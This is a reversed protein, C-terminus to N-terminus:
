SESIFLTKHVKLWKNYKVYLHLLVSHKIKFIGKLDIEYARKEPILHEFVDKITTHWNVAIIYSIRKSM